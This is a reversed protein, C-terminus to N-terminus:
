HECCSHCEHSGDCGAHPNLDKDTADRVEVVEVEFHLDKGALPHNLDAVIADDNVEAVIFTMVGHPTQASFQMGPEINLNEPFNKLPLEQLLEEQVEGYGDAAKVDVTKSDGVELGELAKDLGPIIRNMGSVFGLSSDPHSQDAIEGDVTLKYEIAVYKKESIKM